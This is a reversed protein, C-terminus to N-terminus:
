RVLAREQGPNGRKQEVTWAWYSPLFVSGMLPLLDLHHRSLPELVLHVVWILAVCSVALIEFDLHSSRWPVGRLTAISWACVFWAWFVQLVFRLADRVRIGGRPPDDGLVCDLVSTDTGWMFVQRKVVRVLFKGPYDRIAKLALRMRIHDRAIPDAGVTGYISPGADYYLADSAPHNSSLLVSGLNASVLCIGGFKHYNRITWPALVAGMAAAVIIVRALLHRLSAGQLWLVLGLLVPLSLFTPHVYAALAAGCGLTAWAVVERWGATRRALLYLSLLAVYAFVSTTEYGLTGSWLVLSPLCAVVLCGWRAGKESYRAVAYYLLPVSLVMLTSQVAALLRLNSGFLRVWVSLWASQGPPYELSEGYGLGSALRIALRYYTMHDSHPVSPFFVVPLRLLAALVCVATVWSRSSGGYVMSTLSRIHRAPLYKLGIGLGIGLLVPVLGVPMKKYLPFAFLSAFGLWSCVAWWVWLAVEAKGPGSPPSTQTQLAHPPFSIGPVELAVSRRATPRLRSDTEPRM